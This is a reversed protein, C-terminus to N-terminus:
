PLELNRLAQIYGEIGSTLWSDDSFRESELRPAASTRGGRRLVVRDPEARGLVRGIIHAVAGVSTACNLLEEAREESVSCIVNWDGWGMWLQAPDITERVGEYGPPATLAALDLEVSVDNAIALQELTPLLGDSNDMAATIAGTQALVHMHRLQSLPAFVPSDVVELKQGDLM